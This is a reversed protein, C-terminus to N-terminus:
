PCVMESVWAALAKHTHTSDYPRRENWHKDLLIIGQKPDTVIVAVRRGEEYRTNLWDIQHLTLRPKFVRPLQTSYHNYEVWLDGGPGSYYCDPIGRHFNDNIKWAYVEPLLYRHLKRITQSENM